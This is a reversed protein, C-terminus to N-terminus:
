LLPKHVWRRMMKPVLCLLLESKMMSRSLIVVVAETVIILQTVIVVQIVVVLQTVIVVRIEDVVQM